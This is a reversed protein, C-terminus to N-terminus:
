FRWYLGIIYPQIHFLLRFSETAAYMIGFDLVPGSNNAFLSITDPDYFLEGLVKFSRSLDLDFGTYIRYVPFKDWGKELSVPHTGLMLGQHASVRGGRKLPWSLTNALFIKTNWGVRNEYEYENREYMNDSINSDDDAKNLKWPRQTKEESILEKTKVVCANCNNPGDEYTVKYKRVHVANLNFSENRSVVSFFWDRKARRKSFINYKVELNPNFSNADNLGAFSVVNVSMLLKNTFGYALSFGSVYIDGEQFTYGTPDLFIDILPEIVHSYGHDFARKESGIYKMPVKANSPGTPLEKKFSIIDEKQIIFVGVKMELQFSSDTESILKGVLTSNDKLIIQITIVQIDEKKITINGLQTKVKYGNKKEEIIEGKLISGDKLHWKRIKDKAEEAGVYLTTM